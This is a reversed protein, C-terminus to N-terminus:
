RAIVRLREITRTLVTELPTASVGLVASTHTADLLLPDNDLYQMEILEAMIPDDQGLRELEAPSISTLQPAPAEALRALEVTLARVPLTSTSPVHWARGWADDHRAAAIMTRATDEVYSWSHEVDLEGPYAAAVGALVAPPVILNYVSMTDPGLFDSARIETVRANSALADDWMRARVSGKVTTPASPQNETIPGAVPGYAYLNGLMVYDAGTREATTLMGAALPPWDSPWRDYSPMACNYLTTAGECLSTLQDVATADAAVREIGPHDPGSGSRTVLKVREGDDALLWALARGTGGAGVVVSFTM